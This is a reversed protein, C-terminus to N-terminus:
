AFCAQTEGGSFVTKALWPQEHPFLHVQGAMDGAALALNGQCALDTCYVVHPLNWLVEGTRLCIKMLGDLSGLLATEGDPCVCLGGPQGELRLLEVPKLGSPALTLLSTEIQDNEVACLVALGGRWSQVSCCCGPAQFQAYPVLKPARLLIVEGSAGGAVLLLQGKSHLKMDRPFVGVKCGYLLDGTGLHRTHVCDVESSLQFVYRGCASVCMAGLAPLAPIRYLEKLTHRSFCCCELDRRCACLLLDKTVCPMYPCSLSSDMPVLTGTRPHYLTLGKECDTVFLNM